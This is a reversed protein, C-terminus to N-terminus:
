GGDIKHPRTYHSQKSQLTPGRPVYPAKLYVYGQFRNCYRVAGTKTDLVMWCGDSGSEIQYRGLEYSMAPTALTSCFWGVGVSGLCRQLCSM